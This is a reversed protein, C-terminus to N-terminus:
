EEYEGRRNREMFDEAGEEEAPGYLSGDEDGEDELIGEDDLMDDSLVKGNDVGDDRESFTFGTNALVSGLENGFSVLSREVKVSTSLVLRLLPGFLFESIMGDICQAIAVLAM